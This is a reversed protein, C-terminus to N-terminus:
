RSITFTTNGSIKMPEGSEVYTVSYDTISPTTTITGVNPNPIQWFPDVGPTPFSPQFAPQANSRGCHPCYGCNPCTSKHNM